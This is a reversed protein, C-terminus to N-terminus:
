CNGLDSDGAEMGNPFYRLWKQTVTLETSQDCLLEPPHSKKKRTDLIISKIENAKLYIDQDPQLHTFVHWLFACENNLTKKISDVIIILPWKHANFFQSLEELTTGNIIEIVLCGPCFVAYSKIMARLSENFENSLSHNKEGLGIFIAKSHNIQSYKSTMPLILFNNKPNFHKLIHTLLEKFNKLNIRENTIFVIKTSTFPEQSLLKLATSLPPDIYNKKIVISTVNNLGSEAYQYLDQIEPILTSIIPTVLEQLYNQIYFNEQKPKGFVTAPYIANKKHYISQCHFLSGQSNINYYGNSDGYPPLPQILNYSCSGRLVFEHNQFCIDPFASHAHSSKLSPTRLLSSILLQSLHKPVPLMSLITLLPPGGLCITIPLSTKGLSNKKELFFPDHLYTVNDNLYQLQNSQLYHHHSPYHTSIFPFSLSPTGEFAWNTLLPLDKICFTKQSCRDWGELLFSSFSPALVKKVRKTYKSVTSFSPDELFELLSTITKSSFPGLALNIRKFSGFLNTAVPFSSGKVSHFLLAPGNAAVVRRHIEAIELYPDVPFMVDVLEGTKRLVSLFKKLNLM